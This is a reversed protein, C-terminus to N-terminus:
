HRGRRGLAATFPGIVIGVACWGCALYILLKGAPLGLAAAALVLVFGVTTISVTGLLSRDARMATRLVQWPRPALHHRVLLVATLWLALVIAAAVVLSAPHGRVAVHDVVKPGPEVHPPIIVPPPAPFGSIGPVPGGITEGPVTIWITRHVTRDSIIALLVGCLTICVLDITRAWNALVRRLQSAYDADTPDLRLAGLVHAAARGYRQRGAVLDALCSRAYSHDPDIALARKYAAEAQRRLGNAAAVRGLQVHTWADDPAAEGLLQALEAARPSRGGSALEVAIAVQLVYRDNPRLRLAEDAASRAAVVEGRALLVRAHLRHYYANDPRLRVASTVADGAAKADGLELQCLATLYQAQADDPNTALHVALLQRAQEYRHTDVYVSARTLADAAGAPRKGTM